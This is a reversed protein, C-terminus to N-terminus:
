GGRTLDPVIMEYVHLAQIAALCPDNVYSTTKQKPDRLKAIYEVLLDQIVVLRVPRGFLEVKELRRRVKAAERIKGAFVVVQYDREGLHSRVLKEFTPRINNKNNIIKFARQIPTPKDPWEGLIGEPTIGVSGWFSKTEGLIADAGKIAVIDVDIDHCQNGFTIEGNCPIKVQPNVLYGQQRLLATVLAETAEM